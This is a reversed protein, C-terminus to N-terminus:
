QSPTTFFVTMTLNPPQIVKQATGLYVIKKQHPNGKCVKFGGVRHLLLILLLDFCRKSSEVIDDEEVELKQLPNKSYVFCVEEM